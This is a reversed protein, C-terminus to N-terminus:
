SYMWFFPNAFTQSINGELVGYGFFISVGIAKYKDTYVNKRHTNFDIIETQQLLAPVYIKEHNENISSQANLIGGTELLILFVLLFWNKM